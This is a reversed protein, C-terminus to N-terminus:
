ALKGINIQTFTKENSVRLKKATNDVNEENKKDIHFFKANQPHLINLLGNKYM